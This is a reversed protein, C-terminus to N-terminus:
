NNSSGWTVSSGLKERQAKSGAAGDDEDYIFSKNQSATHVVIKEKLRGMVM